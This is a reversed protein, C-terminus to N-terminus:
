PDRTDGTEEGPEPGVRVNPRKLLSWCNGVWFNLFGWVAELLLGNEELREEVHDYCLSHVWLGRKGPPRVETSPSTLCNEWRYEQKGGRHNARRLPYPRSINRRHSHPGRNSRGWAKGTPTNGEIHTRHKL